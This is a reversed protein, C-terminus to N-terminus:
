VNQNDIVDITQSMEKQEQVFREAKKTDTKTVKIDKPKAENIVIQNYSIDIGEKLIMARYERMLDRQIQYRDDENCKAIIRIGVNSEGYYAVGKYFPGEIIGNIKEKWHPLNIRLLNEIKEIPVDYGFECDVLAVSLERSMNVVSSIDSNNIIKINGSVDLLKTSRIGIEVVQGRFGDISVIEGITYENEFVIFLGAIIDAILSQAGIGIVLTIVGVSAILATTNVGCAKLVFIIIVIACFYKVLGDLLTIVTRTRNSKKLRQRFVFRILKCIGLVIVIIIISGIMTSLHDKFWLGTSEANWVNTKIWMNFDNDEPLTFELVILLVVLLAFMSFITLSIITSIKKKRDKKAKDDDLVPEKVEETKEEVKAEAKVEAEETKSEVKEEKVEEVKNEEM